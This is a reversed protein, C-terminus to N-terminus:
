YTLKNYYNLIFIICNSVEDIDLIAVKAGLELAFIEAMRQGLGSAAGTILIVQDRVCKPKLNLWRWLDKPIAILLLNLIAAISSILKGDSDQLETM